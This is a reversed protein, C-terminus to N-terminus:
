SERLPDFDFVEFVDKYERLIMEKTLGIEQLTYTQNSRHGDTSAMLKKLTEELASGIELGLWCYIEKVIRDPEKVLDDYRVIRWSQTPREKLREIPYRYWFKTLEILFDKFPYKELPDGFYRWCFAFWNLLSPLMDYPNRILYIIRADPFTEYLSDVKPSLAPNKSLYIGGNYYLHRKICSRYFKMIRKRKSKQIHTDFLHFPWDKQIFPFFFWVFLGHWTYLFIGEDEEPEKLGM